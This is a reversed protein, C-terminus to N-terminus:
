LSLGSSIVIISDIGVFPFYGYYYINNYQNLKLYNKIYYAFLKKMM